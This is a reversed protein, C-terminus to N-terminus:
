DKRNLEEEWKDLDYAAYESGEPDKKRETANWERMKGKWDFVGKWKRASYYEFFRVPNIIMGESRAYEKVQEKTPPIPSASTRKREREKYVKSEKVKREEQTQYNSKSEQYNSKSEQYNPKETCFILGASEEEDLLWYTWKTKCIAM